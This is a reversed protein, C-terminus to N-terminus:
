LYKDLTDADTSFEEVFDQTFDGDKKIYEKPIESFVWDLCLMAVLHSEKGYVPVACHSKVGSSQLLSRQGIDEMKSISPFFMDGNIVDNIYSSYNAIILNQNKESKRELGDSCREYTISIRQIPSTTYFNGGNHFQWMYVRDANYRRRIDRLALHVIEDKKIQEILNERSKVKEKKENMRKFFGAGVLAVVISTISTILVEAMKIWDM